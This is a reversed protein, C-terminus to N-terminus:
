EDHNEKENDQKFFLHLRRHTSTCILSRICLTRAGSMYKQSTAAVYTVSQILMSQWQLFGYISGETSRHIYLAIQELLFIYFIIVYRFYIIIYLLLRASLVSKPMERTFLAKHIRIFYINPAKELM